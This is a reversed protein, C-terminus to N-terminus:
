RAHLAKQKGTQLFPCAASACNGECALVSLVKALIAQASDSPWQREKSPLAPRSLYLRAQLFIQTSAPLRCIPSASLPTSDQQLGLPCSICRPWMSVVFLPALIIHTKKIIDSKHTHQLFSSLGIWIFSARSLLTPHPPPFPGHKLEGEAPPFQSSSKIKIAREWGQSM